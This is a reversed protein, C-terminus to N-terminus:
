HRQDRAVSALKTVASRLEREDLAAFGLRVHRSPRGDFAFRRETHVQVGRELARAAWADVDIGREARAWLAMGGPPVSFELMSGLRERLAGALAARRAMYVRRMRRAHRALEGDEMLEAVAHEVGHDGQRDTYIRRAVVHDLVRRPAVLYGLRLGPALIKSLTGVYVVVGATDASALPLVPRWEYHFEHDYDDEIIAFRERRALELLALRRAATLTVTSPYQHHPTLYVARLELRRALKELAEVDIGDADVPVSVLRAGTQGLAHWAPPYGLAEVAVVDGKSLLTRAVLDLAMQSGRTVVVDDAGVPLGRTSALMAALAARLRPEGRPDAYGLLTRGKRRLARRYARAIEAVPALRLDPIGGSMVLTGPPVSPESPPAPGLAFGPLEPVRQVSSAVRTEPEPLARSVFTGRALSAEIWGEQALETYAALVTNRHVRLQKALTRSGPLRSGPALRGARIDDSLSRAIGLFIPLEGAAPRSSIKM